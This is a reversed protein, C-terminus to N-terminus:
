RKIQFAEALTTKGIGPIGSIICYHEESLMKRAELFSANQVYLKLKSRIREVEADTRNFISSHLIREMVPTSTLWLKIHSTEVEPFDRLLGNIDDRGYIDDRSRCYPSLLNLIRDKNKPTLGLSTALIYRQPQLLKIKPLEEAKLKSILTPVPTNVYHKCQVVLLSGGPGQYRLDIGQDRGRKFSELRIGYVKQLLDRTLSEFDGNTLSAFNYDPM